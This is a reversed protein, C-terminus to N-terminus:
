YRWSPIIALFFHYKYERLFPNRMLQILIFVARESILNTL